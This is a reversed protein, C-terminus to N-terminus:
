LRPRNKLSKNDKCNWLYWRSWFNPQKTNGQINFKKAIGLSRSCYNDGRPTGPHEKMSPEGFKVEYGTARNISLMQKNSNSLSYIDFIENNINVTEKFRKM